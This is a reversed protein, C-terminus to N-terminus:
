FDRSKFLELEAMLDPPLADKLDQRTYSYVKGITESKMGTDDKRQNYKLKVLEICIQQLAGPVTLYGATYTVFINRWGTSFASSFNLIGNEYDIEYGDLPEDPVQLYIYQNLAFRNLKRFIQTSPYNNYNSNVVAAEWGSEANIKAVLSTLTPYTAFDFESSLGSGDVILDVGTMSVKVYANYATTSTYKIRMVDLKGSCVQVVDSVPWKELCIKKEGGDYREHTYTASKLIRGCIRDLFDSASNILREFIDDKDALTYEISNKFTGITTLANDNLPM